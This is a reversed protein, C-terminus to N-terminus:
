KEIRPTVLLEQQVPAALRQQVAKQLEKTKDMEAVFSGLDLRGYGRDSWLQKEAFWLGGQLADPLVGLQKAAEAFAKQSFAFDADSVGSENKPLLRWREVFGSYGLRRMTRNGAWVDITAGHDTGLLNQVFQSVKPGKNSKLWTRAMVQLVANSSIGFKAGNSQKPTLDHKEVWDKLFAAKTKAGGAQWADTELLDLGELYKKIHRDFKGAKFAELAEITYAYNQKPPTQPSTAALLEAVLPAHKGFTKKLKPVAESYWKLGAQYVPNDRYEKAFDVLAKAFSKVAAEESGAAKYLPSEVIKAKLKAERSPPIV